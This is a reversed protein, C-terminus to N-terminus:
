PLSLHQQHRPCGPRQGAGWLVRSAGPHAPDSTPAATGGGAGLQFVRAGALSSGGLVQAQAGARQRSLGLERNQPHHRPHRLCLSASGEVAFDLCWATHGPTGHGGHAPPFHGSDNHGPGTCESRPQAWASHRQHGRTGRLSSTTCGHAPAPCPERQRPTWTVPHPGSM